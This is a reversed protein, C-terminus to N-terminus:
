AAVPIHYQKLIQWRKVLLQFAEWFRACQDEPWEHLHIDPEQSNLIISVCKEARENDQADAERYASLQEGNEDYVIYRGQAGRKRSKFDTICVGRGVLKLKTDLKGAFGVGKHVVTKECYFVQEVNQRHWDYYPQVLPRIVTDQSEEGFNIFREVAEHILVGRKRAEDVVSDSAIAIRRMHDDHTEGPLPVPNALAALIGQDVRWANLNEKNIEAQLTTVSPFLGLKRADKINAPRMEGKRTAMPVEYCPTGDPHYWHSASRAKIINAM